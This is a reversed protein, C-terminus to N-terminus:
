RRADREPDSVRAQVRETMAHRAENTSDSSGTAGSIKGTALEPPSWPEADGLRQATLGANGPNKMGAEVQRQYSVRRLREAEAPTLRLYLEVGIFHIAFALWASAGFSTNLAAGIRDVGDAAFGVPVPVHMEPDTGSYFASCAPYSSLVRTQNSRFMNDIIYCPQIYYYDKPSRGVIAAMIVGILRMTIIFSAICWARLMWARHQEIQLMKINYFAIVKCSVFVISAFGAASQIELGGGLGHRAIMFVGAVGTFSLLIILYGSIRHVILVKHRIAPVFQFVALFAAPLIGALHIIIGVNEVGQLYYYCEGPGAGGVKSDPNCFIGNIDLYMFRALTFGILAGGFIVFLVFNYGKAFGIPNYIHRALAVFNNAPARTVVVM